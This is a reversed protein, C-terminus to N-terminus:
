NRRLLNRVLDAMELKSLPPKKPADEDTKKENDPVQDSNVIKRIDGEEEDEDSMDKDSKGDMSIDHKWKALKSLTKAEKEQEAKNKNYAEMDLIQEEQKVKAIAADSNLKAITMEAEKARAQSEAKKADADSKMMDIIQKLMSKVDGNDSDGGALPDSTPIDSLDSEIDSKDENPNSESDQTTDDATMKKSDNSKSDSKNVGKDKSDSNKNKDNSDNDKDDDLNLEEEDEDAKINPWEVDVINFKDKLNFLIEAVDPIKKSKTNYLIEGLAKEFEKACEEGISIKVVDGNTDEIGFKVSRRNNRSKLEAADLKSLIDAKDFKQSETTFKIVKFKSKTSNHDSKSRSSKRGKKSPKSCEKDDIPADGGSFINNTSGNAISTSSTSGTASVSENTIKIFDKLISM